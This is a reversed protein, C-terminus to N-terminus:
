IIGCNPICILFLLLFPPFLSFKISQFTYSQRLAIMGLFLPYTKFLVLATTKLFSGIEGHFIKKSFTVSGILVPPEARSIETYCGQWLKGGGSVLCLCLNIGSKQLKAVLMWMGSITRCPFVCFEVSLFHPTHLEWSQLKQIAQNANM